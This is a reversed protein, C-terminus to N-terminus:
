VLRSIEPFITKLCPLVGGGNSLVPEELTAWAICLGVIRKEEGELHLFYLSLYSCSAQHGGEHQCMHQSPVVPGRHQRGM